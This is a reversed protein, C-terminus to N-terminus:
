QGGGPGAHRGWWPPSWPKPWGAQISRAPRPQWGRSSSCWGSTALWPPGRVLRDARQLESGLNPLPCMGGCQEADLQSLYMDVATALAQRPPLGALAQSFHEFM